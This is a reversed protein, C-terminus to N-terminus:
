KAERECQVGYIQQSIQDEVNSGSGEFTVQVNHQQGGGPVDVSYIMMM